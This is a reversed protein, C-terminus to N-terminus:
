SVSLVNVKSRLTLNISNIVHSQTRAVTKKNKSVTMSHKACVHIMITRHTAYM